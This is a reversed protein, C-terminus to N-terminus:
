GFRVHSDVFKEFIPSGAIDYLHLEVSVDTEPISITKVCSSMSQTMMYNKAAAASGNQFMTVLSTKGVAADGAIEILPHLPHSSASHIYAFACCHSPSM